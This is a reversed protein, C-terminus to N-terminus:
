NKEREIIKDESILTKWVMKVNAEVLPPNQGSAISQLVAGTVNSKREIFVDEIAVYGPFYHEILHIYNYVNIDDVAQIKVEMPSSLIKHGAKRAEENDEIIGADVSAVAKNVGSKRQIQGFVLEAQRRNQERLFGDAALREFEAKQEELQEFEVQMRDIDSRLKGVEGRISREEREKKVIEPTLYLYASAALLANLAVLAALVVVRKIGLVGIM